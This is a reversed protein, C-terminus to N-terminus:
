AAAAFKQRVEARRAVITELVPRATSDIYFTAGFSPSAQDYETVQLLRQPGLEMVGDYKLGRPLLTLAPGNVQRGGCAEAGPLAADPKQEAAAEEPLALSASPYSGAGTRAAHNWSLPGPRQNQEASNEYDYATTEHLM